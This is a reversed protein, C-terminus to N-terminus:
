LSGNETVNEILRWLPMSALLLGAGTLIWLFLRIQGWKTHMAADLFPQLILPRRWCMVIDFLSPWDRFFLGGLSLFAVGFIFAVGLGILFNWNTIFHEAGM